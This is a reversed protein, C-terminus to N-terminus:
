ILSLGFFLLLFIVFFIVIVALATTVTGLVTFVMLLSFSMNEIFVVYVLYAFGGCVAILVSFLLCWLLTTIIINVAIKASLRYIDSADVPRETYICSVALTFVALFINMMCIWLFTHLVGSVASSTLMETMQEPKFMEGPDGGQQFEQMMNLMEVQRDPVLLFSGAAVLAIPLALLIFLKFNKIFGNVAGDIIDSIGFAKFVPLGNAPKVPKIKNPPNQQDM